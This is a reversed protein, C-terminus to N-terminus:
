PPSGGPRGRAARTDGPAGEAELEVIADILKRRERELEAPVGGNARAAFYREEVRELEAELRALERLSM